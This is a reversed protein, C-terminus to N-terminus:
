SQSEFARKSSGSRAKMSSLLARNKKSTSRAGATRQTVRRAGSTQESGAARSCHVLGGPGCRHIKEVIQVRLLAFSDESGFTRQQDQRSGARAFRADDGVADGIQDILARRGIRNEGDGEGVFGGVLHAVADACQELAGAMGQAFGPDAREVREAAAQEAAFGGTEAQGAIEGDVVGVVLLGREFESEGRDADFIGAFRRAGQEFADAEGLILAM